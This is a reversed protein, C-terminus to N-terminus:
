ISSLTQKDLMRRVMAEGKEVDGSQPTRKKKREVKQSHWKSDLIKIGRGPILGTGGATSALHRFWQVALSTQLRPNMIRVDRDPSWLWPGFVELLRPVM